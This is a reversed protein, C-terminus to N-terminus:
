KEHKKIMREIAVLRWGKHSPHKEILEKLEAFRVWELFEIDNERRRILTRWSPNDSDPVRNSM